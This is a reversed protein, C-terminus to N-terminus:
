KMPQGTLYPNFPGVHPLFAVADRDSNNEKYMYTGMVSDIQGKVNLYDTWKDSALVLGVRDKAQLIANINTENTTGEFAADRDVFVYPLKVQDEAAWRAVYKRINNDGIYYLAGSIKIPKDHKVKSYIYIATLGYGIQNELSSDTPREFQKVVDQPVNIAFYHTKFVPVALTNSNNGFIYGYFNNLQIFHGTSIRLEAEADRLYIGQFDASSLMNELASEDLFRSDALVAPVQRKYGEPKAWAVKFPKFSSESIALISGNIRNGTHEELASIANALRNLVDPNPLFLTTPERFAELLEERRRDVEDIM